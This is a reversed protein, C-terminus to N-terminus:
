RPRRQRLLGVDTLIREYREGIFDQLSGTYPIWISYDRIEIVDSGDRSVMRYHNGNTAQVQGYNALVQLAELWNM